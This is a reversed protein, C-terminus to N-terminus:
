NKCKVGKQDDCSKNTESKKDKSSMDDSKKEKNSMDDKPKSNPKIQQEKIDKSSIDDNAKSTPKIQQEKIDVNKSNSELNIVRVSVAGAGMNLNSFMDQILKAFGQNTVISSLVAGWNSNSAPDKYQSYSSGNAYRVNKIPSPNMTRVNGGVGITGMNMSNYNPEGPVPPVQYDAQPKWDKFPTITGVGTAAYIIPVEFKVLSIAKTVLIHFGKTKDDIFGNINIFPDVSLLTVTEADGGVIVKANKNIILDEENRGNYQQGGNTAIDANIHTTDANIKLLYFNDRKATVDSYDYHADLLSSLKRPESGVKGNFYVNSAKLFLSQRDNYSSSGRLTSAFTIDGAISTLSQRKIGITENEAIIQNNSDVSFIRTTYTYAEGGTLTVAGSYNQNGTTSIDSALQIAGTVNLTSALNTTASLSGNNSNITAAGLANTHALRLSKNNIYIAGRYANNDGSLTLLGSGNQNVTGTGSMNSDFSYDTSKVFSLTGNNLVNSNSGVSRTDDMSINSGNPINVTGVNNLV